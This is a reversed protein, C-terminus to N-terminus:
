ALIAELVEAEHGRPRVHRFIRALRGEEDIVFTSRLVEGDGWAGYREAVEHSADVLLPFPLAHRERFAVHSRADDPSVGLIVANAKLFDSYADRFGCAEATCGPTDDEPYFFLVVKNGLFASLRLREGSEDPLEFDPAPDGERLPRHIAM